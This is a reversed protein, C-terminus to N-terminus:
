EKSSKELIMSPNPFSLTDTIEEFQIVGFFTLVKLATQVSAIILPSKILCSIVISSEREVVVGLLIFKTSGRESSNLFKRSTISPFLSRGSTNGSSAVLTVLIASAAIKDLLVPAGM